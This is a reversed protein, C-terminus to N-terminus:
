RAPASISLLRSPSQSSTMHKTAAPPPLRPPQRPPSSRTPSHTLPHSFLSGIKETRRSQHRGPGERLRSAECLSPTRVAAQAIMKVCFDSSAALVMSETSSQSTADITINATKYLHDVCMAFGKDQSRPTIQMQRENQSSSNSLGLQTWTAQSAIEPFRDQHAETLTFDEVM